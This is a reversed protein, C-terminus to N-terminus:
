VEVKVAVTVVKQQVSISSCERRPKLMTKVTYSAMQRNPVRRGMEQGVETSFFIRLGRSIHLGVSTGSAIVRANLVEESM